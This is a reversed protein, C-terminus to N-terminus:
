AAKDAETAADTTPTAKAAKVVDDPVTIEAVKGHDTVAFDASITLDVTQGNSTVSSKTEPISIKTLKYDKDFTLNLTLGDILEAYDQPVEPIASTAATSDQAVAEQFVAYADAGKISVVYGDDAKEFTAKEILKNSVEGIKATSSTDSETVTWEGEESPLASGFMSGGTNAKTYTLFKGDQEVSYMEGSMEAGLMSASFTGHSADGNIDFDLSVPMDMTMGQAGMTISADGKIHCNNPDTKANQDFVDKASQPESAGGGGCGAFGALCAFALTVIAIVSLIRKKNLM